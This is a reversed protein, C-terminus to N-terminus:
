KEVRKANLLQHKPADPSVNNLENLRIIMMEKSCLNTGFYYTKTPKHLILYAQDEKSIPTSSGELNAADLLKERDKDPFCTAMGKATDITAANSLPEFKGRALQPTLDSIFSASASTGGGQFVATGKGEVNRFCASNSFYSAVVDAGSMTSNLPDLATGCGTLLMLSGALALRRM